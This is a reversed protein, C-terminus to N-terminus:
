VRQVLTFRQAGLLVRLKLADAIQRRLFGLLDDYIGYLLLGVVVRRDHNAFDFLFGLHLSFFARLMTAPAIWLHAASWLASVVTETTASGDSSIFPRMM